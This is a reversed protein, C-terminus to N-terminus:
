VALSGAVVLYTQPCIGSQADSCRSTGLSTRGYLKKDRMETKVGGEVTANPM